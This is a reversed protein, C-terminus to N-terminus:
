VALFGSIERTIFEESVPYNAFTSNNSPTYEITGMKTQM